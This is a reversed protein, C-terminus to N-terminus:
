QNINTAKKIKKKNFLEKNFKLNKTNHTLPKNTRPTIIDKTKNINEIYNDIIRSPIFSFNSNKLNREDNNPKIKKIEVLNNVVDLIKTGYIGADIIGYRMIKKGNNLVNNVITIDDDDKKKNKKYYKAEIRSIGKINNGNTNNIKDFTYENNNDDIYYITYQIADKNENVPINGTKDFKTNKYMGNKSHSKIEWLIPNKGYKVGDIIFINFLREKDKETFKNDNLLELYEKSYFKDSKSSIIQAKNDDYLSTLQSYDVFKNEVDNGREFHILTKEELKDKGINYFNYSLDIDDRIKGTNKDFYMKYNSPNDMVIKKGDKILKEKINQEVDKYITPEISSIIEQKPEVNNIIKKKVDEIKIKIENTMYKKDIDNGITNLTDYIKNIKKDNLKIKDIQEIMDDIQTTIYEKKKNDDYGSYIDNNVFEIFEGVSANNLPNIGNPVEFTLEDGVLPNFKTMGGIMGGIMGGSIPLSPKYGLGNGYPKIGDNIYMLDEITRFMIYLLIYYM